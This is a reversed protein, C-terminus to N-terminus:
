LIKREITPNNDGMLILDMTKSNKEIDFKGLEAANVKCEARSLRLLSDVWQNTLQTSLRIFPRSVRADIPVGESCVCPLGNVQAEVAALGLGEFLSPFAFVDFASLIQRADAREGMLIVYEGVGLRNALTALEKRLSGGGVIVLRVDASRSLLEPMLGILFAHNKEEELRGVTGIVHCGHLNYDSRISSRANSSFSFEDIYFANNIQQFRQEGFFYDGAGKSCAILQTAYRMAVRRNRCDIIRYFEHKPIWSTSHVCAIRNSIAYRKALRLADINLFNNYNAWVAHYPGGVQFLQKVTRYYEVPNHTKHPISIVRNGAEYFVSGHPYGFSLVDFSYKSQLARMYNAVVAETGGITETLGTVLIKTKEM